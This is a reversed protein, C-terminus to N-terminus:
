QLHGRDYKWSFLLPPNHPLISPTILSFTFHPYESRNRRRHVKSDVVFSCCVFERVGSPVVVFLLPPGQGKILVAAM